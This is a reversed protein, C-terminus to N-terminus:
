NDRLIALLRLFEIYLWVLTVTLGFAASWSYRQPAGQRVGNEITGFDVLFSYAGLLVAVIGIVVGLPIGMVEVSRVGWGDMTGTWMLVGNILSFVMYAVMAIIMFRAGKPTARLRGSRYLVLVVGFVSLTALVAQLVIGDYRTNLAGSIGGLLMGECAAYIMILVPSPERRFANILGFVLAGIIGPIFLVPAVFWTALGTAVIVALLLATKMIVDDYTMRGTHYATASAAAYATEYSALDPATGVVGPAGSRREQAKTGFVPNRDLVPNAM